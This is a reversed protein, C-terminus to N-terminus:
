QQIDRLERTMNQLKEREETWMRDAHPTAKQLLDDASKYNKAAMEVEALHVQFEPLNPILNLAQQLAKRAEELKGQKLYVMGLTDWAAALQNNKSLAEKVLTEAEESKGGMLVAWALDNLTDPNRQEALSRSLSDEALKYDRRKMQLSGMVFNGYPHGPRVRLLELAHQEAMDLRGEKMDMRLLLDLSSVDRPKYMMSQELYERMAAGDNKMASAIALARCTHFDQREMKKIKEALKEMSKADKQVVLVNALM